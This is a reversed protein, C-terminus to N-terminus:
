LVYLMLIFSLMNFHTWLLLMSCVLSGFDISNVFHRHVIRLWHITKRKTKQLRRSLVTLQVSIKRSTPLHDGLLKEQLFELPQQVLPNYQLEYTYHIALLTLLASFVTEGIEITIVKRHCVLVASSISSPTGICLIWPHTNDKNKQM